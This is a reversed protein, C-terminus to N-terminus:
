IIPRGETEKGVSTTGGAETKRTSKGVITEATTLKPQVPADTALTTFSVAKSLPGEGGPGEREVRVYLSYATGPTLTSIFVEITPHSNAVAAVSILPSAFEYVNYAVIPGDGIDGNDPNWANWKLTVSTTGINEATPADSLEPLALHM